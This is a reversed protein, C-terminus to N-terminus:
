LDRAHREDPALLSIAKASDGRSLAAHYDNVTKSADASDASTTNQAELPIAVFFAALACSRCLMAFRM